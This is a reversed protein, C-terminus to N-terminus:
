KVTSTRGNIDTEIKNSESSQTAFLFPQLLFYQSKQGFFFLFVFVHLFFFLPPSHSSHGSTWPLPILFLDKRLNRQSYLSWSNM